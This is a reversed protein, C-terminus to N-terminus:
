EILLPKLSQANNIWIAVTRPPPSRGILNKKKNVINLKQCLSHPNKASLDMTTNVGSLQLLTSYKRGVGNVRLLDGRYVWSLVTASTVGIRNALRMRGRESAGTRLLDRVTYIGLTRLVGGHELGIGEVKDIEIDAEVLQRSTKIPAPFEKKTRVQSRDNKATFLPAAPAVIPTSPIESAWSYVLPNEPLPAVLRPPIPMPPLPRIQRTIHIFLQGLGCAAAAIITWFFGNTMGIFITAVPVGWISLTTQPIKTYEYLLQSPPLDPFFLTLIVSFAFTITLIAKTASM